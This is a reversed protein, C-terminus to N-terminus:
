LSGSVNALLRDRLKECWLPGRIAFFNNRITKATLYTRNPDARNTPTALYNGAGIGRPEM